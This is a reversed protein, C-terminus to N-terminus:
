SFLVSLILSLGESLFKEAGRILIDARLCMFYSIFDPELGEFNNKGQYFCGPVSSIVSFILNVGESIIKARM